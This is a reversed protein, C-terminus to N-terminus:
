FYLNNVGSIIMDIGIAGILFANIRLFIDMNKDFATKFKTRKIHDRIYKLFLIAFYNVVLVLFIVGTAAIPSLVNGILIALSITAAGVMFPLAIDSALDDLDEKVRILAKEGHMIFAFAISAVIIGGFIRFAEYHILFIREFIFQGTLAFFVYIGFSIASAKFLVYRFKGHPLEQMVPSLYIFLAFPNLVALFAVALSFSM